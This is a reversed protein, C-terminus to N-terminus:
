GSADEQDVISFHFHDGHAEVDLMQDALAEAAVEDLFVRADGGSVVEDGELPEEALEFELAADGNGETSGFVRLGGAPGLEAEEVIEKIVDQAHESIVLV